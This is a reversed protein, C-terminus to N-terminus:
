PLGRVAMATAVLVLALSLAEGKRALLASIACLLVIAVKLEIITM